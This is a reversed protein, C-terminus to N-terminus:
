TPWLRWIHRREFFFSTKVQPCFPFDLWVWSCMARKIFCYWRRSKSRSYMGRSKPLKTGAASHMARFCWFYFSLLQLYHLTSQLNCEEVGVRALWVCVGVCVKIVCNIILWLIPETSDLRCILSCGVASFPGLFAFNVALLSFFFFMMQEGHVVLCMDGTLSSKILSCISWHHLCAASFAKKMDLFLIIFLYFGVPAVSRCLKHPLFTFSDRIRSM